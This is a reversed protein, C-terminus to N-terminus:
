HKKYIDTYLKDRKEIKGDKSYARYSEVVLSNDTSKIIKTDIFLDYIDDESHLGYINVTAVGRSVSAEIKIPYNRRNKFKFDTSGWVVTADKGPDSYSPVFMHNRREEIEMNSEIAANYLTTSIQCIGGGLGDVVEGNQYISAEKYGAAITRKGVVKNYSFIEDPMIVTGNIKSAALKLNTTRDINETNYKTSFTGILDPFAENGLDNVTIDAKTYTLDISYEELNPNNNIKEKAEDINFDIGTVDPFVAYPETTFYANKVERYIENHITDIDIPKPYKTYTPISIYKKTYSIDQIAELIEKKMEDVEIGAGNIGNTIILEGEDIYYAYEKLQDPLNSEISKIYSSLEEDNYRLIPEININTMLVALYENIDKFFNGSKAISLAYNVSAEIDFKAEIQEVELYYIHNEYTLEIHDNMQKKLETSVLQIAEHKNLGSVNIGKIFVGAQIVNSNQQINYFLITGAIFIGITIALLIAFVLAISDHKFMKLIKKSNGKFIEFNPM